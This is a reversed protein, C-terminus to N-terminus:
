RRNIWNSVGLSAILGGLYGGILALAIQDGPILTVILITLFILLLGIITV